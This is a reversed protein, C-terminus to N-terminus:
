ADKMKKVIVKYFDADDSKLFAEVKEVPLGELLDDAIEVFQKFQATTSALKAEASALEAKLNEISNAEDAQKVIEKIEETEAASLQTTDRIDSDESESTAKAVVGSLSESALAAIEPTLEKKEHKFAQEGSMDLKVAKKVVPSTPLGTGM